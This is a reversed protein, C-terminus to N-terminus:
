NYPSKRNEGREPASLRQAVQPQEKFRALARPDTLCPCNLRAYHQNRNKKLRRRMHTEVQHSLFSRLRMKSERSGSVPREQAIVPNALRHATEASGDGQITRAPHLGPYQCEGDALVGRRRCDTEDAAFPM